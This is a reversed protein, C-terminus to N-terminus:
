PKVTNAHKEILLGIVDSRSLGLRRMTRRVMM